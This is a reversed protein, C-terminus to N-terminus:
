AGKNPRSSPLQRICDTVEDRLWGVSRVGILRPTPIIGARIWRYVSQRSTGFISCLEPMRIIPSTAAQLNSNPHQNAGTPIAVHADSSAHQQM